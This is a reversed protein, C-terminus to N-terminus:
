YSIRIQVLLDSDTVDLATQQAAMQAAVAMRDVYRSLVSLNKTQDLIPVRSLYIGLM